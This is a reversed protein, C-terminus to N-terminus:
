IQSQAIWIIDVLAVHALPGRRCANQPTLRARAKSVERPADAPLYRTGGFYTILGVLMGVRPSDLVM